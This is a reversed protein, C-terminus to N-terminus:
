IPPAPVLVPSSHLPRHTAFARSPLLSPLVLWFNLSLEVAERITEPQTHLASAGPAIGGESFLVVGM